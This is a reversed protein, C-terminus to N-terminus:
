KRRCYAAFVMAFLGFAFAYVSPEPVVVNAYIYYTKSDSGLEVKDFKVTDSEVCILNDFTYSALSETSSFLAFKYTGADLGEINTFDVVLEGLISKFFRGQFIAGTTTDDVDLANSAGLLYRLTGTEQIKVEWNNSIAKEGAAVFNGDKDFGGLTIEASGSAGKQSSSGVTIRFSDFNSGEGMVTLNNLAGETYSISFDTGTKVSASDAVILRSEAGVKNAAIQIGYNTAGDLSVAQLSSNKGTVLVTMKHNESEAAVKFAGTITAQSNDVVFSPDSISASGQLQSFHGTFTSDKIYIKNAGGSGWSITGANFTAGDLVNVTLSNNYWFKSEGTLTLSADAGIIELESDLSMGLGSNQISAATKAETVTLKTGSMVRINDTTEPLTGGWTAPDSYDGTQVTVKDEAFSGTVVALLCLSLSFFKDHIKM